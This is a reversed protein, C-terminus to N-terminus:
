GPQPRPLPHGLLVTGSSPALFSHHSVSGLAGPSATTPFRALQKGNTEGHVSVQSRTGAHRDQLLDRSTVPGTEGGAFLSQQKDAQSLCLGHLYPLPLSLTLPSGLCDGRRWCLARRPARVGWVTRDHGSGFGLRVSVRRLGGPAEGRRVSKIGAGHESVEQAAGDTNTRYTQCSTYRRSGKNGGRPQKQGNGLKVPDSGSGPLRVPATSGEGAEDM